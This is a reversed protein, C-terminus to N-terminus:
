QAAEALKAAEDRRKQNVKHTVPELHAEAVCNRRRCLHDLQRKCPLHGHENIWAVRHVAVTQGDLYMRAYEGGRGNGSTPGDWIRCPGLEPNLWEPAPEEHSRAAIKARIQDRRNM